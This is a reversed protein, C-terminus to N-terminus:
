YGLRRMEDQVEKARLLTERLAETISDVSTESSGASIAALEIRARHLSAECRGAQHLLQDIRVQLQGLMDLRRRHSALTDERIWLRDAQGQDRKLAEVDGELGDIERELRERDATHSLRMLDLADSMASLGQRYAEGALSPVLTVSLTDTDRHRGLAPQLEQYECVLATLAKLGEESEITSFGAELAQRLQAVEAEERKTRERDLTDMVEQVRSKYREPYRFTQRWLLSGAAAAVSIGLLMTAWLEGGTGSALLLVYGGSVVAIGVPVLTAPHCTVDWRLWRRIAMESLGVEVSQGMSSFEESRSWLMGIASAVYALLGWYLMWPGLESWRDLGPVLRLAGALLLSGGLLTLGLPHLLVARM